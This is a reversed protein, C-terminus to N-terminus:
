LKVVTTKMDFQSLDLDSKALEEAEYKNDAEVEIEV